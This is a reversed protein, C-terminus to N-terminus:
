PCAHGAVDRLGIELGCPLRVLGPRLSCRHQPPVPAPATSLHHCITSPSHAVRAEFSRSPSPIDLLRPQSHFPISVSTMQLFQWVCIWWPKTPHKRQSREAPLADTGSQCSATTNRKLYVRVWSRRWRVARAPLDSQWWCISPPRGRLGVLWPPRVIVWVCWLCGM